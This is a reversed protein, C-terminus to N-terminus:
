PRTPVTRTHFTQEDFRQRARRQASAKAPYGPMGHFPLPGVTESEKTHLDADKVWGDTFLVYWRRSGATPSEPAPYRLTIEDGPALIVLRDDNKQLLELVDGYRTYGGRMGPYRRETTTSGYDFLHPEAHRRPLLASFGRYHLDASRLTVTEVLPEEPAEVALAIRDWYLEHQSRLALRLGRRVHPELDPPLEVVVSKRKGNPLPLPLSRVVEGTEDLVEVAPPTMHRQPDQSLAVNITTDTPFIWGWLVLHSPVASPPPDFRLELRHERALGQFRTRPLDDVRQGDRELLKLLVDRGAHDIASSPPQLSEAVLLPPTTPFPPPGFSEDVILQHEEPVDVVVLSQHDVYITEWLEDTVQLWLEDGSPQLADEPILVYDRGSQHPAPSGDAFVMGLTSRWLLDTHFGFSTGNWTYLFPCSGKLVQEEVLTQEAAVQQWTQTLGNTWIVRIVDAQRRSGLGLHNVGGNGVFTRFGGGARLEIRAFLGQTNNKANSDNRGALSLRVWQNRDGGLNSWVVVRGDDGLVLLDLDGDRDEDHALVASVGTAPLDAQWPELTGELNRFLRVAGASVLVLDLDGDNDLDALEGSSSAVHLPEISFDRGSNRLVLSSAGLGVLDLDGDGELDQVLLRALSPVASVGWAESADVLPGSRRNILVRLGDATAAVLDLDGDADLDIPTAARLRLTDLGLEAAVDSFGRSGDNRLVQTTLEAGGVLLDLDGDQEVDTALLLEAASLDGTILTSVETDGSEFSRVWAIRRPELAVLDTLADQDLDAALVTGRASVGTTQPAGSLTRTITGATTRALVPEGGLRREIVLQEVDRLADWSSATREFGIDLDAGGQVSKPLPPVFELQPFMFLGSERGQLEALGVQYLESPRLLNQLVQAPPRTAEADGEFVADRLRDAFTTQQEDFGNLRDEVGDLADSAADVDGAGTAAVLLDVLLVLNDPSRDIAERLVVAADDARGREALSRARLFHPRPDRPAVAALRRLLLDWNRRAELDDAVRDGLIRALTFLVQPNDGDLARAEELKRLADERRDLRFLSIALNVKPLLNEPMLQELEALTSAARGFNLSEMDALASSHLSVARLLEEESRQSPQAGLATVCLLGVLMMSGVSARLGGPLRSRTLSM